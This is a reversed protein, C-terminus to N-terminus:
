QEYHKVIEQYENNHMIEDLSKQVKAVLEDSTEKNFAFAFESIPLKYIIKYEKPNAGVKTLATICAMKDCLIINVSDLKLLRADEEDSSSLKFSSNKVGQKTLLKIANYGDISAITYQNLDKVNNIVISSNAKTMLVPENIGVPGVWKFYKERKPTRLLPFFVTNKDNNMMIMFKSFTKIEIDQSNQTSGLKKMIAAVVDIAIGAKNDNNDIYSYPPYDQAIWRLNDNANCFSSISLSLMISTLFLKKM